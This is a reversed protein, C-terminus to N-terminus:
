TRTRRRHRFSTLNKPRVRRANRTVQTGDAKAAKLRRVVEGQEKVRALLTDRTEDAMTSVMHTQTMSGTETRETRRRVAKQPPYFLSFRRVTQEKRECDCSREFWNRYAAEACSVCSLAVRLPLARHGNTAVNGRGGGRGGRRKRSRNCSLFNECYRKESYPLM